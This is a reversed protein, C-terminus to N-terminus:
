TFESILSEFKPKALAINLLIAEETPISTKDEILNSTNTYLKNDTPFQGAYGSGSTILIYTNTTFTDIIVIGGGSKTLLGIFQGRGKSCTLKFQKVINSIKEFRHPDAFRIM